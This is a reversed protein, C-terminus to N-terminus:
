TPWTITGLVILENVASTINATLDIEYDEEGTASSIAERIKSIRLTAGPEAERRIMDDLEAEVAERTATTDPLLSLFEIDVPTAVLVGVEFGAMGAPRVSDVYDSVATIHTLTPIPSELEDTVFRIVVTGPGNENSYCWARTVDVHAEKAWAVYDHPAGGMPPNQKREALRERVRAVAEADAGGTMTIIEAQTDVGIVTTMITAMTGPALNGSLGATVARLTLTASGSAVTADATVRWLVDGLKFLTEAPIVAGDNGNITASGEARAAPIQYIGFEAARLLLHEDDSSDDFLQDRNYDLHGHLGYCGGAHAMALPYYIDGRLSAPKGTALEIDAIIRSRLAALTPKEFAM